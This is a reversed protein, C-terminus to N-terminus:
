GLALFEHVFSHRLREVDVGNSAQRLTSEVYPENVSLTNAKGCLKRDEVIHGPEYTNPPLSRIVDMARM